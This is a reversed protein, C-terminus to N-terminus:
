DNGGESDRRDTPPSVEEVIAGQRPDLLFAREEEALGENNIEERRFRAGQVNADRGVFRTVTLLTHRLDADSLNAGRFDAGECDGHSLDAGSLDAGVFKTLTFNAGRCRAKRMIVKSFDCAKIQAGEFNWGSLDQGRLQKFQEDKIAVVGSFDKQDVCNAFEHVTLPRPVYREELWPDANNHYASQTEWFGFRDDALLEVQKIWKLSKYFYKGECVSRVPAGHEKTLRAGDVETALLVHARAYDLPLSTDHQRNSYAVFRVFRANALPQAKRLLTELMVGKWRHDFHTWSTVCITDWVKEVTPLNRFEDWSLSFPEDVLGSVQLSWDRIDAAPEKEGVLPFHPTVTQGPSLQRQNLTRPAM